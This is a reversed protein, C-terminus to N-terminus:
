SSALKLRQLSLKNSYTVDFFSCRFETRKRVEKQQRDTQNGINIVLFCVKEKNVYLFLILKKPNGTWSIIALM